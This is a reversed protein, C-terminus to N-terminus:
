GAEDKQRAGEEAPTDQLLPFAEEMLVFSLVPPLDEMAATHHQPSEQCVLEVCLPTHQPQGEITANEM